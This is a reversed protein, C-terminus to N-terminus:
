LKDRGMCLYCGIFNRIWKKKGEKKVSLVMEVADREDELVNYYEKITRYECFGFKKYLKIAISNNM